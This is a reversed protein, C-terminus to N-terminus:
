NGAEGPIYLLRITKGVQAVPPYRELEGFQDPPYSQHLVDGMRAARASLAVWGQYHGAADPPADPPLGSREIDASSWILLACRNIHRSRLEAALRPVDQGCDLDCGMVLVRSPDKGAFTNFYALFDRQASASEILQTALLAVVAWRVLPKWSQDLLMRACSVGAVIALLPFAIMVHRVGVQYSVHMTVLLIAVLAALPLLLARRADNDKGRVAKATIFFLSVALLLLLSLPLKVGLAVLYFYWWGRPQIHGFLYSQSASANLAWSMAIGHLLEPAPLRPNRIVLSRAAARLPRPFHQFSPMSAPSIGTAEELPRVSFRYGAWVILVAVCGAVALRGVLQWDMGTWSIQKRRPLLWAALMAM